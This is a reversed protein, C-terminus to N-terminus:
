GLKVLLEDRTLITAEGSQRVTLEYMDDKMGRDSVTVRYPLGILDADAFKVGPREDRDDYLVEINEARLEEYLTDAGERGKEGISVIHVHYPAVEKPWVIGKADAFKEVIVGM